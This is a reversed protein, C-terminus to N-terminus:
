IPIRDHTYHSKNREEHNYMPAESNRLQSFKETLHGHSFDLVKDSDDMFDNDYDTRHRTVKKRKM